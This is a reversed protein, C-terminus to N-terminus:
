SNESPDFSLDDESVSSTGRNAFLQVVEAQSIKEAFLSSNFESLKVLNEDPEDLPIDFSDEAYVIEEDAIDNTSIDKQNDDEAKWSESEMTSIREENYNFTGDEMILESTLLGMAKEIDYPDVKGEVLKEIGIQLTSKGGHKKYHKWAEMDQGNVFFSSMTHDPIIVEAVVTRGTVGRKCCGCGKTNIFRINSDEVNQVVLVIRKLLKQFKVDTGYLDQYETLSYSCKQCVTKVLTQYILASFFGASGLVDNPIGLSRMRGVIGIGSPAHITTFVKHGTQVAAILLSATDSDRVEGVMLVDPDARLAARMAMAYPTMDADKQRNVVPFQTAGKIFQEPPNEVTIVKITGEAERIVQRIMTALSTTKGSGTVGALVIVGSPKSMGMEIDLLQDPMYGLESLVVPDENEDYPLLRLVVDFGDSAAPITGVRVRLRKGNILRDLVADQAINKNFTIDKEEAMVQYLVLSADTAYEVPWDHKLTLDGNVRFRVRASDRGVEIHIDSAGDLLGDRLLADVDDIFDSKNAIERKLGNNNKEYILKIIQKAAAYERVVKLNKNKIRERITLYTHDVGSKVKELKETSRILFIENKDAYLKVVVYHDQDAQAVALDGGETSIVSHYAPLSGLNELISVKTKASSGLQKKNASPKIPKSVPPTKPVSVGKKPAGQKKDIVKSNDKRFFNFM